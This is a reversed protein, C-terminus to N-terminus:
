VTLHLLSRHGPTTLRYVPGVKGSGAVATYDFPCVNLKYIFRMIYVGFWCGDWTSLDYFDICM